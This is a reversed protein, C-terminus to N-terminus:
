NGVPERLYQPLYRYYVELCLAALSTTYVRGGYGGWVTDTDWSGTMTGDKRQSAVLTRRLAENWRQWHPGQLQYTALTAYYWYYLNAVKTEGPLEGLLYDGAEKATPSDPRLGLFLRCVLAEATMPRSVREAPRYAALGRYSGSSVSDLWRAAGLWAQQPVAVGALEASKLAMLQWGLQSTDGDDGLRYRWGGTSPNQMAVTYAVARRVPERLQVDGTMGAAESLAFAAMAHCYMAAYETAGGALNGNTSQSGILYDLGRQVNSQYLGKQHTNGAALMALLALGTVGTDADIGANLRDRGGVKTERGAGHQRAIWAGSPDQNNALWKLAARVADETEGTAGFQEAQRSRDPALRLQYIGPTESRIRGRSPLPLLPPGAAALGSGVPDAAGSSPGGAISPPQVQSALTNAPGPGPQSTMVRQSDSHPADGALSDAPRGRPPVSPEDYGWDRPAEPNDAKPVETLRPVPLPRELLASPLGPRNTRQPGESEAVQTDRRQPLPRLPLEARAAERRQAEPAQIAEASKSWPAKSGAGGAPLPEPEPNAAADMALHDLPVAGSLAAPESATQRQLDPSDHMETRALEITTTQLAARDVFSEWPKLDQPARATGQEREPADDQAVAVRIPPQETTQPAQFRIEVTTAYAALLTHAVISLILCKRLAHYQGWRTWMLLLLAMSLAALGAWLVAVLLEMGTMLELLRDLRFGHM